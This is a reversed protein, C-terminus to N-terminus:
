AGAAGRHRGPAVARVVDPLGVRMITGGTATNEVASITGGHREVVRACIALGLGTGPVAADTPARFFTEFVRGRLSPDIGLGNDAVELVVQGGDEDADRQRRVEVRPEVGPAVYKAANSLLNTFLQRLLTEDGCVRGLDGYSVWPTPGVAPGVVEVVDDLLRVLDVEVPELPQDGARAYDLLEEILTMAREASSYVRLLSQRPLTADAPLDDLQDDVIEAWSMTAAIPNRLDHAVMGTFGELDRLYAHEETVDRMSVVALRRTGGVAGATDEVQLPSANVSLVTRRGSGPEQRLLIRNEVVVGSLAETVPRRGEDLAAGDLERLGYADASRLTEQGDPEGPGGMRRAAANRILLRGQDDVVVLGDVMVDLVTDLVSKQRRTEQESALARELLVHRDKLGAALLQTLASNLLVFLQVLLARHGQDLVAGFPGLGLLSAVAVLVGVLFSHAAAVVPSFRSGVWVSTTVVVFSLPLQGRTGFVWQAVLVTAIAAAAYEAGAWPRVRTTLLDPLRRGSRRAALVAMVLTVVMFTACANRVVWSVGLVLSLEAGDAVAGAVGVAAGLPASVVAGLAVWLVGWTATVDKTARHAVLAYAVGQTVNALGLLVSGVLGVGLLAQGGAALVFLVGVHPWWRGGERAWVMWLAVVGAAPWFLALGTEPLLWQRGVVLAAAFAIAWGTSAVWRHQSM